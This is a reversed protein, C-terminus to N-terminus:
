QFRNLIYPYLKIRIPNIFSSNLTILILRSMFSRNHKKTNIMFRLHGGHFINKNLMPFLNVNEGSFSRSDVTYNIEIKPKIWVPILGV